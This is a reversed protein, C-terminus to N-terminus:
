SIGTTTHYVAEITEKSSLAGFKIDSATIINRKKDYKGIVIISTGVTLSQKLFARNFVSVGVVGNKTLLRINLKNLNAKFRVLIPVSEVKGDIIVKDEETATELDSRKLVEYRFPYHTVLDEVNNINLKKLAQETKPGVGKIKSLNM